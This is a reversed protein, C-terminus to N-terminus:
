TELKYHNQSQSHANFVARSNNDEMTMYYFSIRISASMKLVQVLTIENSDHSNTKNRSTPWFPHMLIHIFEFKIYKIDNKQMQTVKRRKQLLRKYTSQNISLYDLSLNVRELCVM